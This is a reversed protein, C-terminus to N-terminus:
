GVLIVVINVIELVFFFFLRILENGKYVLFEVWYNEGDFVNGNEFFWLFFVVGFGVFLFILLSLIGFMLGGFM